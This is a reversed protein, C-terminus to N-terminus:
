NHLSKDVNSKSRNGPPDSAPFSELGAQDLINEEDMFQRTATKKGQNTEMYFAYGNETAVFEESSLTFNPEINDVSQQNQTSDPTRFEKANENTELTQSKNKNPSKM